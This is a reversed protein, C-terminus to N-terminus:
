KSLFFASLGVLVCIAGGWIGSGAYSLAGKEFLLAFQLVTVIFGIIIMCACHTRVFKTPFSTHNLLKEIVERRQWKLQNRFRIQQEIDIADVSIFPRGSSNPLVTFGSPPPPDHPPPNSSNASYYVPM